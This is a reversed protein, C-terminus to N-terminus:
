KVKSNNLISRRQFINSLTKTALKENTKSTNFRSKYIWQINIEKKFNESTNIHNVKIGYSFYIIHELTIYSM